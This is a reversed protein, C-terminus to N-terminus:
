PFQIAIKVNVMPSAVNAPDTIPIIVPPLSIPKNSAPTKNAISKSPMTKATPVSRDKERQNKEAIVIPTPANLSSGRSTSIPAPIPASGTPGRDELHEEKPTAADPTKKGSPKNTKKEGSPENAKKKASPDDVKKEAKKSSTANNLLQVSERGVNIAARPVFGRRIRTMQFPRVLVSGGIKPDINRVAVTGKAVVVDTVDSSRVIVFFETGRVAAVATPTEVEFISAADGPAKNVIARLTGRASRIVSKRIKKEADYSFEKIEISYNSSLNIISGDLFRLQARSRKKTRVTDGVTAPMGVSAVQTVKTQANTIDVNGRVITFQAPAPEAALLWPSLILLAFFSLTYTFSTTNM